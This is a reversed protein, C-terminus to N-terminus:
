RAWDHIVENVMRLGIDRDIIEKEGSHIRKVEGYPEKISLKEDGYIVWLTKKNIPKIKLQEEGVGDTFYILVCNRLNNNKIYEFVPSFATSGNDKCRKRIDNKNKLKYVLRIENDCEIVTVKNKSVATIALVEILIKEIEEDSMSASIDLAVIIDADNKPLRGRIDLREPQRRDRRTITRKYSNRIGPIMNKLVNQWSIEPTRNFDKIIEDLTQPTEKSNISLATKQTLSKVDKDNLEAEEWADHAKDLKIDYDSNNEDGKVEKIRKKISDNIIEAYEEASRNEPLEVNYQLEADHLKMCFGPMNNIYSNISIDLAVNVAERCFREKMKREREYHSNMIHYIEHKLLAAIEKKDFMLLLYPNFYMIFGSLKPVTAIPVTISCKIDKTVKLLFQGFFEDRSEMLSIIVNQILDFLRRKYYESFENRESNKYTEEFLKRRLEEFDM